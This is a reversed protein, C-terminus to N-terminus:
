LRNIYQYFKPIFDLKFKKFIVLIDLSLLFCEEALIRLGFLTEYLLTEITFSFASAKTTAVLSFPSSIFASLVLYM